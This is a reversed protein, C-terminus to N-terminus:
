GVTRAGAPAQEGAAIRFLWASGLWLAIFFGNFSLIWRPGSVPFGLGDILTIVAIVAHALATAFLALAMGRPRFRAILAGIIEVALVGIYMLNALEDPEGIIGVALNIWVLLFPATLALAVAFRYTTSRRLRTILLALSGAVILLVLFEAVNALQGLTM